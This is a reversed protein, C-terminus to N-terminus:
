LGSCCNSHSYIILTIMLVSVKIDILNAAVVVTSFNIQTIVSVGSVISAAILCKGKFKVLLILFNKNM